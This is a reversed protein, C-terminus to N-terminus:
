NPLNFRATDPISRVAETHSRHETLSRLIKKREEATKAPVEGKSLQRPAKIHRLASKVTHLKYCKTGAARPADTAFSIGACCQTTALLTKLPSLSVMYGFYVIM